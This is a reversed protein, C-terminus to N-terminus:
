EQVEAIRWIVLGLLFVLFLYEALGLGRNNMLKRM